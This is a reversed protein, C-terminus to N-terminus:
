VPQVLPHYHVPQMQASLQPLTARIVFCVVMMPTTEMLNHEAKSLALPLILIMPSYLSRIELAENLFHM